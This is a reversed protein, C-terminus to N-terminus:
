RSYTATARLKNGVQHKDLIKECHNLMRKYGVSISKHRPDNKLFHTHSLDIDSKANQIAHIQNSQHKILMSVDTIDALNTVMILLERVRKEHLKGILGLYHNIEKLIEAKAPHDEVVPAVVPEPHSVPKMEDVLVEVPKAAKRLYRFKSRVEDRSDVPFSEVIKEADAHDDIHYNMAEVLNIRKDTPLLHLLTLIMEHDTVLNAHRLIVDYRSETKIREIYRCLAVPNRCDSELLKKLFAIQNNSSLLSLYAELHESLAAFELHHLLITLRRSEPAARLLGLFDEGTVLLRRHEKLLQLFNEENHICQMAQVFHKGNDIAENVSMLRIFRKAETMALLDSILKDIPSQDDQKGKDDDQRAIKGSLM